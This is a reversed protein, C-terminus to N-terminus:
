NKELLPCKNGKNDICELDRIRNDLRVIKSKLIDQFDHIDGDTIDQDLKIRILYDRGKHRIEFIVFVHPENDPVLGYNLMLDIYVGRSVKKIKDSDIDVDGDVFISNKEVDGQRDLIHCLTQYTTLQDDGVRWLVTIKRNRLM